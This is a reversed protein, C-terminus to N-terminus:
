KCCDSKCCSSKKNICCAGNKGDCGDLACALERFLTVSACAVCRGFRAFARGMNKFSRIM